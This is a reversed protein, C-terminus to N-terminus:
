TVIPVIRNAIQDLDSYSLTRMDFFIKNDRIYTLISPNGTRLEKSFQHTPITKSKLSLLVSTLKVDPLAGGGVESLGEEIQLDLDEINDILSILHKAENILDEQTKLLMNLIPIKQSALLPDQYLRMTAELAAIAMKDPRLARALPNKTMQSILASSGIIIGAQPGGLLKDGSFTLIDAGKKLEEKVTPDNGIGNENLPFICGSGLNYIFPIQYRNTLEALDTLLVDEVYGSLTFNSRHVKLILATESSIAKEYDELNTRNSTGVEILKVGGAEVIEPMRFSGGIEILESRSIIVEKKRALTNLALLVAAANNNVILCDEAGTLSLILGRLHDFRNGRLGSELDLELNCYGFSNEVATRAEDALPARGINTHLVIGTANIVKVLSPTYKNKLIERAREILAAELDEKNNFLQEGKHIIFRFEHLTDRVADTIVPLSIGQIDSLQPHHILKEVSPLWQYYNTM